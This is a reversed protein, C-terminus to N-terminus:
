RPITAAPETAWNCRPPNIRARFAGVTTAGGFSNNGALIVTGAPVFLGNGAGTLSATVTLTGAGGGLNYSGGAPTLSGSYTAGAAVAGLCLSNYSVSSANTMNITENSVGTLAIAGNSAPNILGSNLWGMVTTYAGGVNVAGPSLIGISNAGVPAASFSAYALNGNSVTTSGSFSVNNGSLTVQGAGAM